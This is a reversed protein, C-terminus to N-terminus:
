RRASAWSAFPGRCCVQHLTGGDGRLTAALAGQAAISSFAKWRSLCAHQVSPRLIESARDARAQALSLMRLADASWCGGVQCGLVDRLRTIRSSSMIGQTNAESRWRAAAAARHWSGHKSKGQSSISSVLTAGGCIPVGHHLPLGYAVIELQRGDIPAIGAVGTDRLMSNEVVQAGAERFVQAWVQELAHSRMKILGNRNCAL